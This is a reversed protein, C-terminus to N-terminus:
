NTLVLHFPLHLKSNLFFFVAVVVFWCFLLFQSDFLQGTTDCKFLSGVSFLRGDHHLRM